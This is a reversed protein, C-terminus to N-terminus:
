RLPRATTGGGAKHLRRGHRQDGAASARAAKRANGPSRPQPHAKYSPILPNEGGPGYGPPEGAACPTPPSLPTQDAAQALVGSKQRPM